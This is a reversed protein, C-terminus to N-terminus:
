WGGEHFLQIIEANTSYVPDFQALSMRIMKQRFSDM